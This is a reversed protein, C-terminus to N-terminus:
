PHPQLWHPLNLRRAVDMWRMRFGRVQTFAMEGVAARKQEFDWRRSLSVQGPPRHKDLQKRAVDASLKEPSDGVLAAADPSVHVGIKRSHSGRVITFEWLNQEVLEPGSQITWQM